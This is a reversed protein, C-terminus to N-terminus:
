GRQYGLDCADEGAPSVSGWCAAGGIPQPRVAISEPGHYPGCAGELRDFFPALCSSVTGSISWTCRRRSSRLSLPKRHHHLEPGLPARRALHDSWGQFRDSNPSDWLTRIKSTLTSSCGSSAARNSTKEIGFVFRRTSAEPITITETHMEIPVPSCRTGAQGGRAM